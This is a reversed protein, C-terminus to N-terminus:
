ESRIVQINILWMLVQPSLQTCLNLAGERYNIASREVANCTSRNHNMKSISTFFPTSERIVIVPGTSQWFVSVRIVGATYIKESYRVNKSDAKFSIQHTQARKRIIFAASDLPPPPLPPRTVEIKHSRVAHQKLTQKYRFHTKCTKVVYETCHMIIFRVEYYAVDCFSIISTPPNNRLM